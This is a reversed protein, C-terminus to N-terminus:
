MNVVFMVAIEINSVFHSIQDLGYAKGGAKGGTKLFNRKNVM